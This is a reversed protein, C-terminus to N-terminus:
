VVFSGLDQNARYALRTKKALFAARAGKALALAISSQCGTEHDTAAQKASPPAPPRVHCRTDGLLVPLHPRAGGMLSPLHAPTRVVDDGFSFGRRSMKTGPANQQRSRYAECANQALNRSVEELEELTMSVHPTAEKSSLMSLKSADSPISTGSSSRSSSDSDKAESPFFGMSKMKHEQQQQQQKQQQQREACTNRRSPTDITRRRLMGEGGTKRKFVGDVTNAANVMSDADTCSRRRPRLDGAVLKADHALVEPAYGAYSHARPRPRQQRHDDSDIDDLGHDFTNGLPPFRSEVYQRQMEPPLCLSQIPNL